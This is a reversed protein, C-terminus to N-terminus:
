LYHNRIQALVDLFSEVLNLNAAALLRKFDDAGFDRGVRLQLLNQHFPWVNQKIIARTDRAKLGVQKFLEFQM